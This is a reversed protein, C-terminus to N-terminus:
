NDAETETIERTADSTAKGQTSHASNFGDEQISCKFALAFPNKLNCKRNADAHAILDFPGCGEITGLKRVVYEIRSDLSINSNFAFCYCIVVTVNAEDQCDNPFSLAKLPLGATLGFLFLPGIKNVIRRTKNSFASKKSEKNFQQM